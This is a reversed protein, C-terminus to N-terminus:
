SCLKDMGQLTSMLYQMKEARTDVAVMPDGGTLEFHQELRM